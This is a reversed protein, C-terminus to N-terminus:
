LGGELWLNIVMHAVSAPGPIIVEGSEVSEVLEERTFYRARDVEVQDARPEAGDVAFAKYALMLSRPRPWPQSGLYDMGRVELGVEEMVERRVAREAGEGADVFGALLSMRNTPWQVNHLLLLRDDPDLVAVIVAPDTRPYETHGCGTCTLTWGAAEVVLPSGCLHCFRTANHWALLASAQTAVLSDAPNLLDPAFDTLMRWDLDGFGNDPVARASAARRWQSMSVVVQPVGADSRGMFWLAADPVDWWWQWVDGPLAEWSLLADGDVAFQAPHRALVLRGGEDRLLRRVDVSERLGAESDLDGRSLAFDLEM